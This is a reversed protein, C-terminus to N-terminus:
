LIRPTSHRTPSHTAIHEWAVHNRSQKHMLFTSVEHAFSGLVHDLTQLLPRQVWAISANDTRLLLEFYEGAMLAEYVYEHLILTVDRIISSKQVLPFVHPKHGEPNNVKAVPVAKPLFRSIKLQKYKSIDMKKM